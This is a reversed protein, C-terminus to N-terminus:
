RPPVWAPTERRELVFYGAPIRWGWVAFYAKGLMLDDNAPDPQVLYDRLSREISGRPNRRSAGYDLLEAAPYFNDRKRIDVLSVVYFGFRRPNQANPQPLWPGDIGNQAVPTNYGEIRDPGQFFGKIFKQIGLLRTMPPTNYGCWESGVLSKVAPAKSARLLAELSANSSRALERFRESIM